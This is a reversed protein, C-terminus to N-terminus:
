HITRVANMIASTCSWPPSEVTQMRMARSTGPTQSPGESKNLSPSSCFVSMRPRGSQFSWMEGHGQRDSELPKRPLRGHRSTASSRPSTAASQSPSGLHLHSIAGIDHVSTGLNIPAM